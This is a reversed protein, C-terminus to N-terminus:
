KQERFSIQLVLYTIIDVNILLKKVKFRFSNEYLQNQMLVLSKKSVSSIKVFSQGCKVQSRVGEVEALRNSM